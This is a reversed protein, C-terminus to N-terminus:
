EKGMGKGMGDGSSSLDLCCLSWRIKAKAPPFCYIEMFINSESSYLAVKQMKHRVILAWNPSGKQNGQANPHSWFPLWCIMYKTNRELVWLNVSLHSGQDCFGISVLPFVINECSMIAMGHGELSRNLSYKFTLFGHVNSCACGLFLHSFPSGFVYLLFMSSHLCM